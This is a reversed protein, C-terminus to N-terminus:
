RASEDLRRVLVELVLLHRLGPGRPPGPV